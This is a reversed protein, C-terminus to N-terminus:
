LDVVKPEPLPMIFKGKYGLERLKKMLEEGIHWSLLLAYDPQEKFLREEDVIPVHTGPTFLGIKLSGKREVTYDLVDKDINCYSLTTSGRAPASIGVINKGSNKIEYLIKMLKIKSNVIRQRLEKYTEKDYLKGKKEEELLQKLRESMPLKQKSAFVRISGGHTPILEVDFINFGFKNLLEMLPKLSYYRLHEHYVTDYLTEKILGLLYQSESVFLGDDSLLKSIGHMLSDLDVIHGFVNTATIVKAKGHEVVIKEAIKENFYEKVTPIGKSIAIEALNAPEIGLVRIGKDHFGKLLTGDNSGIDVVLDNRTLKFKNIMFDAFKAFHEIYMKTMSTQMPYEPPFVIRPDPAFGIQALGCKDCRYLDLPYYVEPEKLMDTTLYAQVLPHHGLSIILELRENGCIQCKDIVKHNLKEHPTKNSM